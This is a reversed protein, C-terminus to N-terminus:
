TADTNRELIKGLTHVSFFPPAIWLIPQYFLSQCVFLKVRLLYQNMNIINERQEETSIFPMTQNYRIFWHVYLRQWLAIIQLLYITTTMKRINFMNPRALFCIGKEQSFGQMSGVFCWTIDRPYHPRIKYTCTKTPSM